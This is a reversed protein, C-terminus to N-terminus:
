HATTDYELGRAVLAEGLYRRALAHEPALALARRLLIEAAGPDGGLLAPLQLLFAGKAVLVDPDDPALALAADIERGLRRVTWWSEIGLRGRQMSRGLNCFLAFH